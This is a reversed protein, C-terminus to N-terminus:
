LVTGVLARDQPALPAQWQQACLTRTLTRLAHVSSSGSPLHKPPGVQFRQCLKVETNPIAAETMGVPGPMSFCNWMQGLSETQHPPDVSRRGVELNHGHRSHFSLPFYCFCATARALLLAHLHESNEARPSLLADQYM